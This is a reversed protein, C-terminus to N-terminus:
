RKSVSPLQAPRKVRNTLLVGGLVLLGGILTALTLEDGISVAILVAFVPLLNLFIGARAPGIRSIGTNWLAYSTVSAFVVIFALGMWGGVDQPLQLGTIIVLPLMIIAAFVSQVATATVPPTKVRRGLLSYTTWVVVSCLILLDGTNFGLEIIQLFHGGTLVVLVGVFSILLGLIRSGTMREGFVLVAGLAITAPSIANIVAASIPGTFGFAAYLLLTYGTLGLLAQFLHLPWERLAVRWSVRELLWALPVLFLCALAWRTGTLSIPSVQEVVRSGVVINGAWFLVALTLFLYVRGNKM